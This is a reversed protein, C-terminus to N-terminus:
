DILLTESWDSYIKNIEGKVKKYARIRVFRMNKDINKIKVEEKNKNSLDFHKTTEEQFDSYDSYAIDIGDYKSTPKTFTVTMVDKDRKVSILEPKAPKIYYYVIFPLYDANQKDLFTVKIAASGVAVTDSYSLKYLSEDLVNGDNDKIILKPEHKEGDYLVEDYELEIYTYKETGPLIRNCIACTLARLGPEANTPTRLTKM